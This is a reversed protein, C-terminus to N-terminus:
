QKHGAKILTDGYEKARNSAAGRAGYMSVNLRGCMGYEQDEGTPRVYMARPAVADFVGKVRGRAAHEHGERRKDGRACTVM